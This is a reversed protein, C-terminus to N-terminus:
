FISTNYQPITNQTTPQEEQRKPPLDFHLVDIKDYSMQNTLQTYFRGVIVVKDGKQCSNAFTEGRKGWITCEFWKDYKTGGVFESACISFNCVSGGNQTQRLEPNAGLRGVANIIIM